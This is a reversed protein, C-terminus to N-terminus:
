SAGRLSGYVARPSFLIEAAVAFAAFLILMMAAFSWALPRGILTLPGRWRYTPFAQVASDVLLSWPHIVLSRIMIRGAGSLLLIGLYTLALVWWVSQM